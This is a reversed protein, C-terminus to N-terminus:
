KNKKQNKLRIQHRHHHHRIENKARRYADQASFNLNQALEFPCDERNEFVANAVQRSSAVNWLGDSALIIHSGRIPETLHLTM